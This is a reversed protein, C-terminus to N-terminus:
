TLITFNHLILNFYQKTLIKITNLMLELYHFLHYTPLVNGIGEM